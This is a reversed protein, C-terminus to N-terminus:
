NEKLLLDLLQRAQDFRPDIELARRAAAAAERPRNSQALITARAYPIRADDAALSEARLLSEIAAETKGFANQALGLNYWALVHRPELKVATELERVTGALDGLEHRALGLKYHSEADNPVIRCAEKLADAAEQPRNLASLVVALEQRLPASYPDWSIAKQFHGLATEFENRSFYFLGKHLQGTPQDSNTDLFHLFDRGAASNLDLTARLTSAAAVRVSRVPDTLCHELAQRTEPTLEAAAPELSAAAITRVLPNTHSLSSVLVSAVEPQAAWPALFGIAVAQWYPLEERKLWALLEPQVGTEGRQARANVLARARAPRDMKAGYWEDCYKLAWDVPKDAHCRNCANPIGYQRTLLPDPSTFGHDHRWHRQMYVTQPMHCNVCEGGTEQIEKPRYASLDLSAPQGNTDFGFVKHRSHTVPNIIPANTDGGNHCRLCLWNGPLLTKMSHPNHCDLCYVGRAYMRSGLFSSYEYDEDRIQGDAYYRESRDVVVLDFHDLFRDGPKFDGTLDTRRAHCFGCYDLVQAKTAKSVTPDKRGSKGFQKQWANHAALPGHCSECGVSQEAMTTHYTDTREDYNRFLRTNHCAACMSNWNMGRGTWHGWEGPRRDEAGYVNFWQNSRPDYSAELTQWRGAPFPVLFQQLPDEGIVRAVTHSEPKGSLGVATVQGTGNTWRLESSQTGHSFTRAPDFAIRDLAPDVPREARAHHSNQWLEYAEEHCERCSASGGYQALVQRQDPSNRGPEGAPAAGAPQSPGHAKRLVVVLQWLGGLLAVGVLLAFTVKTKRAVRPQIPKGTGAM